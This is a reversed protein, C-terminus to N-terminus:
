QISNKRELGLAIALDIANKLVICSLVATPPTAGLVCPASSNTIINGNLQTNPKTNFPELLSPHLLIFSTLKKVRKTLEAGQGCVSSLIKEFTTGAITEHASLTEYFGDEENFIMPVEECLLAFSTQHQKLILVGKSKHDSNGASDANFYKRLNILTYVKSQINILGEIYAPTRYLPFLGQLNSLSEGPIFKIAETNRVCLHLEISDLHYVLHIYGTNPARHANTIKDSLSLQYNLLTESFNSMRSDSQSSYSMTNTTKTSKTKTKLPFTCLLLEITTHLLEKDRREDM